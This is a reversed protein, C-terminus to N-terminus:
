HQTWRFPWNEVKDENEPLTPMFDGGHDEFFPTYIRPYEYSGNATSRGEDMKFLVGNLYRNLAQVFIDEM